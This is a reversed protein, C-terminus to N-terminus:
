STFYKHDDFFSIRITILWPLSHGSAHCSLNSQMEELPGGGVWGCCLWINTSTKPSNSSDSSKTGALFERFRVDMHDAMQNSGVLRIDQLASFNVELLCLQNDGKITKSASMRAKAVLLGQDRDRM